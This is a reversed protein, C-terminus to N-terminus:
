RVGSAVPRSHTPTSFLQGLRSSKPQILGKLAHGFIKRKAGRPVILARPEVIAVLGIAFHFAKRPSVQERLLHGYRRLWHREGNFVPLAVGVRTHEAM